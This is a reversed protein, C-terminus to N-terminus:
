ESLLVFLANTVRAPISGLKVFKFPKYGLGNSSLAKHEVLQAIDAHM